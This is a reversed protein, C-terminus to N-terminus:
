DRNTLISDVTPQAPIYLSSDWEINNSNNYSINYCQMYNHLGHKYWLILIIQIILAVMEM